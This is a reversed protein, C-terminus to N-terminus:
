IKWLCLTASRWAEFFGCSHWPRDYFLQGSQAIRVVCTPQIRNVPRQGVAGCAESTQRRIQWKDNEADTCQRSKPGLLESLADADHDSGRVVGHQVVADLDDIGHTFHQDFIPFNVGSLEDIGLLNINSKRFFVIKLMANTPTQLMSITPISINYRSHM